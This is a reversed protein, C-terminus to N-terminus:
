KLNFILVLLIMAGFVSAAIFLDKFSIGDKKLLLANTASHHLFVQQTEQYQQRKPFTHGVYLPSSHTRYAIRGERYKM